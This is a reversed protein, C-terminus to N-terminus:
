VEEEIFQYGTAAPMAASAPDVQRGEFYGVIQDAVGDAAAKRRRQNLLQWINWEDHGGLSFNVGARVTYYRFFADRRRRWEVSEARGELRTGDAAYFPPAFADYFERDMTLKRAFHEEVGATWTRSGGESFFDHVDSPGLFYMVDWRRGARDEDDEVLVRTWMRMYDGGRPPSEAFLTEIDIEEGRERSLEAAHLNMLGTGEKSEMQYRGPNLVWFRHGWEEMLRRSVHNAIEVNTAYHGGGRGSLPSSQFVMVMDEARARAIDREILAVQKEFLEFWVGTQWRFRMPFGAVPYGTDYTANEWM